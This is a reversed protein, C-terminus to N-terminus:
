AELIWKDKYTYRRVYSFPSVAITLAHLLGHHDVLYLAGAQAIGNEPFFTIKNDSFTIPTELMKTPQGPPGAVQPQIGFKLAKLVKRERLHTSTVLYEQLDPYFQVTYPKGEACAREQLSLIHTCLADLEISAALQDFAKFSPAALCALFALLGLVLICELPAFARHM